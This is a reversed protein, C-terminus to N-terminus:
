HSRVFLSDWDHFERIRYRKRIFTVSAFMESITQMLYEPLPEGKRLPVLPPTKPCKRWNDLGRGSPEGLARRAHALASYLPFWNDDLKVATKLAYGLRNLYGFRTM